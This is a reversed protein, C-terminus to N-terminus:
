TLLTPVHYGQRDAETDIGYSVGAFFPSPYVAARKEKSVYGSNHLARSVVSPSVKAYAAVDTIRITM